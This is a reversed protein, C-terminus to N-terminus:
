ETFLEVHRSIQVQKSRINIELLKERQHCLMMKIPTLIIYDSSIMRETNIDHIITPEVINTTFNNWNGEPFLTNWTATDSMCKLNVGFKDAQFRMIVLASKKLTTIINKNNLIERVNKLKGNLTAALTVEDPTQWTNTIEIRWTLPIKILVKRLENHLQNKNHETISIKLTLGTTHPNKTCLACTDNCKLLEGLTFPSHVKNQIHGTITSNYKDFEKSHQSMSDSPGATDSDERRTENTSKRCCCRTRDFFKQVDCIHAVFDKTNMNNGDATEVIKILNDIKKAVAASNRYRDIMQKEQRELVTIDSELKKRLENVEASCRQLSLRYVKTKLAELGILNEPVKLNCKHGASRQDHEIRKVEQPIHDRDSLLGRSYATDMIKAIAENHKKKALIGKEKEYDEKDLKDQAKKYAEIKRLSEEATCEFSKTHEHRHTALTTDSHTRSKTTSTHIHTDPDSNDGSENSKTNKEIDSLSTDLDGGKNLLDLDQLQRREEDQLRLRNLSELTIEENYCSMSNEGAGVRTKETLKDRRDAINTNDLFSRKTSLTDNSYTSNAETTERYTDYNTIDNGHTPLKIQGYTDNIDYEEIETERLDATLIDDIQQSISIKAVDEMTPYSNRRRPQQENEDMVINKKYTKKCFNQLLHSRDRHLVHTDGPKENKSDSKLKELLNEKDMQQELKHREESEKDEDEVDSEM